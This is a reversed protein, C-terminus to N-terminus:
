VKVLLLRVVEASANTSPNTIKIRTIREPDSGSAESVTGGVAQAHLVFPGGSRTLGFVLTTVSGADDTMGLELYLTQDQTLANDPDCVVVAQTFEATPNSQGHQDGQWLTVETDDKAISRTVDAVCTTVSALSRELYLRKSEAGLSALIEYFTTLTAM